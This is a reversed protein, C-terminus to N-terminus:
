ELDGKAAVEVLKPVCTMGEWTRVSRSSVGWRDALAAQTLGKQDRLYKLYKGSMTM